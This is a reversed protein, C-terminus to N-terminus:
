GVQFVVMQANEPGLRFIVRGQSIAHNWVGQNIVVAPFPHNQGGTTLWTESAVYIGPELEKRERMLMPLNRETEVDFCPAAIDSLRQDTILTMGNKAALNSATELAVYEYDETVDKIGYLGYGSYALPLTGLLLAVFILPLSRGILRKCRNKWFNTTCHKERLKKYGYALALGACIALSFNMFNYSRYILVFSVADLGSVLGFTMFAMPGTFGAIILPKARSSTSRLLEFGITPFLIFLIYPVMLVLLLRSTTIAGFVSIVSNLVLVGIAALPFIIVKLSFLRKRKELDRSFLVMGGIVTWLILMMGLLVRDHGSILVLHELSYANYYWWAFVAPLAIALISPLNTRLVRKREGNQFYEDVVSFVMAMGLIVILHMFSFHHVFVMAALTLALLITNAGERRKLFFLFALPVLALGLAEKMAASTLYVFFGNFAFFMGAGMAAIKSRSIHHALYAGTLVTTAGIFPIVLRISSVPELGTLLSTLAIVMPLGPMKSNYAILGSGGMRWGGTELMDEAIRVLPYGDINYPQSSFTAPILRVALAALALAGLALYTWHPRLRILSM